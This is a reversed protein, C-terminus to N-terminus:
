SAVFADSYFRNNKLGAKTLIEKASLIMSNSGCAYVDVNSLDYLSSELADELVRNQVYGEFKDWEKDPQSLCPQYVINDHNKQWENPCDDYFLAKTRNGWYIFIQGTYGELILQSVMSKVPAFGTGTALFVITRASRDRLFFTGKPGEIQMLQNPAVPKFVKSSMVGEPVNKLHLELINEDNPLSAISYSRSVGQLKLDIYQGPLFDFKVRPPLRLTLVAIGDVPSNYQSVKSPSTIVNISELEPFYDARVKLDSEPKFQCSLVKKSKLGDKEDLVEVECTDCAGNNCSYPLIVKSKLASDLLSLDSSAEFSVESPILTITYLSSNGM